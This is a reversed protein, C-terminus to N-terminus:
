RRRASTRRRPAEGGVASPPLRAPRGRRLAGQCRRGPIPDGVDEGSRMEITALMTGHEVRDRGKAFHPLRAVRDGYRLPEVPVPLEFGRTSEGVEGLEGLVRRAGRVDGRVRLDDALPRHEALQDPGAGLDRVRRKAGLAARREVQEVVRYRRMKSRASRPPAPRRSDMAMRSTSTLTISRMSSSDRRSLGIVPTGVPNSSRSRFVAPKCCPSRIM